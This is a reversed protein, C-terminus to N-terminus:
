KFSETDTVNIYLVFELYIRVPAFIDMSINKKLMLSLYAETTGINM